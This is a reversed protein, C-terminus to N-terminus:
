ESRLPNSALQARFANQSHEQALREALVADHAAIAEFIARHESVAEGVREPVAFEFLRVSASNLRTLVSLKRNKSASEVARHFDASAQTLGGIDDTDRAREMRAICESLFVIETPSARQAACRAALGFLVQRVEFIDALDDLSLVPVALGRRSSKELLHETALRHLAERIPTRSIHLAAALGLETLHTGPRVLGTRVAERITWYIADGSTNQQAHKLYLERLQTNAARLGNEQANPQQNRAAQTTRKNAHQTRRPMQGCKRLIIRSSTIRISRMVYDM